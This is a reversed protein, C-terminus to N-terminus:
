EEKKPPQQVIVQQPPRSAAVVAVVIAVIAGIVLLVFVAPLVVFTMDYDNGGCFMWCGDDDYDRHDDSQWTLCGSMLPALLVIVVLVGRRVDMVLVPAAEAM